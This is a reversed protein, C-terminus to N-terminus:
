GKAQAYGSTTADKHRKSVPIRVIKVELASTSDLLALEGRVPVIIIDIDGPKASDQFGISQRDINLLFLYNLGRTQWNTAPANVFGFIDFLNMGSRIVRQILDFESLTESIYFKKSSEFWKPHERMVIPYMKEM